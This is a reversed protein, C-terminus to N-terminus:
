DCHLNVGHFEELRKNALVNKNLSNNTFKVLQPKSKLLSVIAAPGGICGGTCMMGEIFNCGLKGVRALAMTKKLESHGSVKIPKFELSINKDKIYNDVAATLGGSQAFGRGFSSSDNLEINDCLEPAINYADFLAAIEEFTMVYDVADKLNPNTIESKKATCPGVFIVVANPNYKKIFRGTAIMPSVTSSIRDKQDPFMKKIYNVFGPCCSNTMYKDGNRLRETFEEAEHVTVADAGCAAELMDKFGLQIFASKIQGVTVDSGFQGVIAPAVVAFIEKKDEIIKVIDTIYSRDSIAGFPCVEMCNGCNICKEEKIIARRDEAIDLAATPCSSKCPRMVESIANYPCSKACMGCEKCLEQEIYAQGNVRKIAGAPCVEMCKHRICGRCVETVRYKDIPCRDCAAPIVYLIQNGKLEEPNECEDGSPIFGSILKARQKIIAREHYVCCRYRAKHGTIIKYPLRQIEYQTVKDEKALLAVEKLMLHKLKKMPDEYTIM